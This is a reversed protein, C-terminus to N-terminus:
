RPVSLRLIASVAIEMANTVVRKSANSSSLRDTDNALQDLAARAIENADLKAGRALGARECKEIRFAQDGAIPVAVCPRGCAITQLLTDGGNSVVLRAGRILEALEAMPMRPTARLHATQAPSEVGVLVTPVGAEAIQRAGNAVIQPADEAGPHGSGGGPVVLVYEGANIDFKSTLRAALEADPLPLVADLYRLEPRGLWALKLREVLTPGGAIFEPYAIWHEDLMRMWRWRYAKRRQRRRSSVFIVRAGAKVAARLQATRGANDFVVLTPRLKWILQMMETTNFTPSSPLLTKPFRTDAAYPAERSVAFHIELQPSRQAVATALALSRAYEGMGRRGSVPVFLVCAVRRPM